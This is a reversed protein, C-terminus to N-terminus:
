LSLGGSRRARRLGRAVLPRRGVTDVRRLEQRGVVDFGYGPGAQRVSALIESPDFGANQLLARTPVECAQRLIHYAAREEASGKELAAFFIVELPSPTNM